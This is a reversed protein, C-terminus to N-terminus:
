VSPMSILPERCVLPQCPCLASAHQSMTNTNSEFVARSLKVLIVGRGKRKTLPKRFLGWPEYCGRPLSSVDPFESEANKPRDGGRLTRVQRMLQGRFELGGQVLAEYLLVAIFANTAIIVHAGPKLARCTLRSWEIFFMSIRKRDKADLATFRPLPARTSGDFTPPIRWIGGKGNARKILEHDDYERVGYPPDTVVAHFSNEPLRSLWEFCDAHIIRGKAFAQTPYDLALSKTM